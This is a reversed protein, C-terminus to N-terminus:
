GLASVVVREAVASFFERSWVTIAAPNVLFREVDARAQEVNLTAIKEVLLAHLAMADLEVGADLHGSQQMRLQLHALNLPIGRSVYWVFDYWDRGKIRKKWGRCLLAHMKGAFLSPPDYVRVSFPIPQLLFRTEHGFGPPPDTDVEIRIRLTQEAHVAGAVERGAEVVLLVERTNV